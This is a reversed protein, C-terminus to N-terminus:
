RVGRAQLNQVMGESRGGSQRAKTSQGKILNEPKGTDRHGTGQQRSHGAVPKGLPCTIGYLHAESCLSALECPGAIVPGMPGKPGQALVAGVQRELHHTVEPMPAGLEEQPLLTVEVHILLTAHSLHPGPM